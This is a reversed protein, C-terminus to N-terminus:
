NYRYIKQTTATFTKIHAVKQTGRNLNKALLGFARKTQQYALQAQMHEQYKWYQFLGVCILVVAATSLLSVRFLRRSTGMSKPFSVTKPAESFYGFLPTYEKLHEAVQAGSFYDRLVAEEALSTEAEFYKVLLAEISASDM